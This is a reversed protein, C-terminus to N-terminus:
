QHETFPIIDHDNPHKLWQDLIVCAAFSDVESKQLKKYGGQEFLLSRAEKTSLREDVLYVPVQLYQNLQQAFMRAAETTYQAQGDIMTPIGVIMAEPGWTQALKKIISWTPTGRTAQLTPLPRTHQTMCHGLAMGIRKMGFDFGFVIGQHPAKNM